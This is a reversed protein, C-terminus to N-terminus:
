RAGAAKLKVIAEDLRRRSSILELNLETLKADREAISTEWLKAQDRATTLETRLQAVQTSHTATDKAAAEAVAQTSAIAEKLVSIDRVLAATKRVEEAHQFQSEALVSKLDQISRHSVREKSWQFAVLATLVVCGIANLLTLVRNKV